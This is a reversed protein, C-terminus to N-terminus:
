RCKSVQRYRDVTTIPSSAMLRFLDPGLCAKDQLLQAAAGLWQLRTADSCPTIGDKLLRAFDSCLTAVASKANLWVAVPQTPQVYADAGAQPLGGPFVYKRRQTTNYALGLFALFNLVAFCLEMKANSIARIANDVAALHRAVKDAPVEVPTDIQPENSETFPTAKAAAGNDAM